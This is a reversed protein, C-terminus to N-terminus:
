LVNNEQGILYFLCNVPQAVVEQSATQTLWVQAAKAKVRGPCGVDWINSGEPFMQEVAEDVHPEAAAGSLWHSAAFYQLTDVSEQARTPTTLIPKTVIM